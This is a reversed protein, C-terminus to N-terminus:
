GYKLNNFRAGRLTQGSLQLNAIGISTMTTSHRSYITVTRTTIDVHIAKKTGFIDIIDGHISSNCSAFITGLGNKGEVIVRLEDFKMYDRNSVKRAVVSVPKIDELFFQNVYIPHPMIERFIGGPLKHCWHDKDTCFRSNLSESTRTEVHLLEGVAGSDVLKKAKLVAPNFLNQWTVGLRVNNRKSAEVIADAEKLGIAMPKEVLVHCGANMAKIALEMHSAPPTVIVVVDLKDKALMDDLNQYIGKIKYRAAAEKALTLQNDCVAALEVQKIM